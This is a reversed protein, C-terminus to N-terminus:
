KARAIRSYEGATSRGNFYRALDLPPQEARYREVPAPAVVSVSSEALLCTLWLTKMLLGGSTGRWRWALVAAASKFLLPLLCYVAALGATAGAEGPRYGVLDLLRYPCGAALALNLKAVLNWWGFYARRGAGFAQSAAIARRVNAFTPSCPRRCTLDAGLAAGSLLCVVAFPWVDGAGSGLGLRLLRRRRADVRDLQARPWLATRSQGV